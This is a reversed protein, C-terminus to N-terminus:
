LQSSPSPCKSSYQLTIRVLRHSGCSIFSTQFECRIAFKLNFNMPSYILEELLRPTPSTVTRLHIELRCDENDAEDGDVDQQDEHGLRPPLRQRQRHRDSQEGGRDTEVNLVIAAM